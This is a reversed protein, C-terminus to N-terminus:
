NTVRIIDFGASVDINAASGNGQMKIIAPGTIKLYSNFCNELMSSGASQMGLIHKTVFPILQTSAYENVLIRINVTSAAPSAKNMAAYYRTMYWTETSPVGYIAMLTQGEGQGIQATITGDTQATAKITGANILTGGNAIVVMRHVIVYSNSTPVKTTGNLNVTESVETANWATLGYVQVQWAGGGIGNIDDLNNSSEIDHLRATTPAVWIAQNDVANARDWIDTAVGSDVNTSRGFKNVSTMGPVNGAPIELKLDKQGIYTM